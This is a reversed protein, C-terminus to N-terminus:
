PFVDEQDETEPETETLQRRAESHLPGGTFPPFGAGFIMGADALDADAVVGRSLAERAAAVLPAVLRGALGPAAGPAAGAQARGDKWRYYGQGSKAGLRGAEVHEALQAPVPDLGLGRGAALAVDLGIRDVLEVPGIQMGWACMAEDITAPPIGDEVCRLAEFLYPALAANVLFGPASAVPLPLKGLAHVFALARSHAARGAGRPSVVEVLPMRAVPNFFHMGILRRPKAMGRAIAEISLSSTNTALVADTCAAAEIRSFLTRKADLDEAIAEIILDAHAIGHGEPDPVLRDRAARVASEDDRHRQRWGVVARGIAAAIAEVREDQLTVDFGRDACLAAIDGGMTGAGVVHVRQLPEGGAELGLRQLRERLRFVRLLNHATDSCALTALSAPDADPVASADGGHRAWIDLIAYPAPYHERRVRVALRARARSAVLRRLVTAMLLERMPLHRCQRGSMVVRRAANEMVRPAVCVDALGLKRARRASVRRGTLLLDLAVPPGVLAPLRRIGGWAPVIGLQVEPLGLRTAPEDVVVRYTCALALELGGGLCHGRILAVTPFPLRAIREFLKSGREALARAAAASDIAELEDIDAGPVFGAEKASAIVLGNPPDEELEGIVRDFEELMAASLSNVREGARDLMLWAVGEWDREVRMHAGWPSSM